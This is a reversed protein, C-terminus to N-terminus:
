TNIKMQVPKESPYFGEKEFDGRETVVRRSFEYVVQCRPGAAPLGKVASTRILYGSSVMVYAGPNQCTLKEDVCMCMSYVVLHQMQPTQNVQIQINWWRAQRM